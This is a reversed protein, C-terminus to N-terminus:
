GIYEGSQVACNLPAKEITPGPQAPAAAQQAWVGTTTLAFLVFAWKVRQM